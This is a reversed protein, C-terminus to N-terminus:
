NSEDFTYVKGCNSDLKINVHGHWLLPNVPADTGVNLLDWTTWTWRALVIGGCRKTGEVISLSLLQCEYRFWCSVLVCSGRDLDSVNTKMM